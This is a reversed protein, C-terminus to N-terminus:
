EAATNESGDDEEELQHVYEDGIHAYEEEDTGSGEADEEADEEMDEEVSDEATTATPAPPAPAQSAVVQAPRIVNGDNHRLGKRVSELIIGAEEQEVVDVVQHLQPNLKTGVEADFEKYGYKEFVVLLNDLLSAFSTHITHERETDAPAVNPAARFEDLVPLMKEVFERKNREVRTKQDKDRRKQFENVQAQVIFYGNKGSESIKDRLKSLSQRETRLKRELNELDKALKQEYNAIAQQQPDLVPETEISDAANAGVEADDTEEGEEDEDEDDDYSEDDDVYGDNDEEEDDNKERDNNTNENTAALVLRKESPWRSKHHIQLASLRYKSFVFGESLTILLSATLAILLLM